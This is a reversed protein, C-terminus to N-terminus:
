KIIPLIKPNSSNFTSLSHLIKRKEQEKVNKTKNQPTKLAKNIGAKIIRQQYYQELLFTEREKM